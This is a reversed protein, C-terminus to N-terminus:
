IKKPNDVWVQSRYRSDLAPAGLSLCSTVYAQEFVAEDDREGIQAIRYIGKAREETTANIGLIKTAHAVKRIDEAASAMTLDSDMSVRNAQSAGIICNNKQAALGRLNVYIDNLQHREETHAKSLLLDPYDIVIVDPAWNDYYELNSLISILDKVTGSKAPICKLKLDGGRFYKRYKEKWETFFTPSPDIAQFERETHEVTWIPHEPESDDM